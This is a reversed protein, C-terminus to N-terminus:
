LAEAAEGLLVRKTLKLLDVAAKKIQIRDAMGIHTILQEALVVFPAGKQDAELFGIAGLSEFRAGTLNGVPQRDHQAENGVALPPLFDVFKQVPAQQRRERPHCCLGFGVTVLVVSRDIDVAVGSYFARLDVVAFFASLEFALTLAVNKAGAEQQRHAFVVITAALVADVGVM